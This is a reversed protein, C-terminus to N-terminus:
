AEGLMATIEEPTFVYKRSCFHCAMEVDRGERVLEDLDKRGISLLARAVRERSCDCHYASPIRDNIILTFEGLVFDLIDEPSMNKDLMSTVSDIEGIKAELRDILEDPAGPMLQILFGGARRVTNDRNMLVGLAVTSPIQESTAFYYTLDEAIEGSVLITQGVYPEKLGTDRIVSLVGLDLAKGVDLKGKSSPPLMVSPDNVYGKANGRNDATM